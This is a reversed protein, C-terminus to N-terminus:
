KILEKYEELTINNQYIYKAIKKGIYRYHWPEYKFGTINTKNKPYRLIFGYKHANELTWTFEKTQDFNDYDLSIDSVDIALGTQHESCGAKASCLSAYEYGKEKVYNNYLKDQYEYSRYGSVGIINLNNEKAKKCMLEFHIKAEKRLHIEKSTFKANILELDNPTYNKPLKNNKNVLIQVSNLYHLLKNNKDYSNM